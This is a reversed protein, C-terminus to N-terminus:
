CISVRLVANLTDDVARTRTNLLGHIM